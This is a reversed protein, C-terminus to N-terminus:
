CSSNCTHHPIAKLIIIKLLLHLRLIYFKLPKCITYTSYPNLIEERDCKGVMGDKTLIYQKGITWLTVGCSSSLGRPKLLGHHQQAQAKHLTIASVIGGKM